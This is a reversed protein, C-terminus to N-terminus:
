VSFARLEYKKLYKAPHYSSKSHRLGELGLDQEWNVFKCGIEQLKIAVEKVLFTAIHAHYTELSKEFHCIGYGDGIVENVSFAKLIGNARLCVLVLNLAEFNDLMTELAIRDPGIDGMSQNTKQAWIKDLEEIEKRQNLTISHDVSLQLEQGTQEKVFVNVKNRKKKFQGGTLGALDSVKYVYDFNDRDENIAFSSRDLISNVTVEPVMSVKGAIELLIKLTEDMKTNGLLSHIQEGSTYDALRIVLNDNLFSLATGGDTNWLFLSTFNFDSYPEFQQTFAHVEAQVSLDLKSFNPFKAIAM